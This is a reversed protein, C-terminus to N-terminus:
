SIQIVGDIEFLVQGTASGGSFQPTVLATFTLPLDTGYVAVPSSVTVSTSARTVAHIISNTSNSSAIVGVGTYSATIVHPSNAVSLTSVNVSASGGVVAVSSGLAAGNDFFQVTGASISGGLGNVSATYTIAQGYISANDIDSSSITTTTVVGM